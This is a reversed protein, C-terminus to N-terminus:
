APGRETTNPRHRCLGDHRRAGDPIVGPPGGAGFADKVKELMQEVMAPAITSADPDAADDPAPAFLLREAYPADRGM